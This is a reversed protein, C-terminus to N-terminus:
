QGLGHGIAAGLPATLLFVYAWALETGPGEPNDGSVGAVVGPVAGVAAGAITPWPRVGERSRTVLFVGLASGATYSLVTWGWQDQNDLLWYSGLALWAVIAGSYFRQPFSSPTQGNVVTWTRASSFGGADIIPAPLASVRDLRQALAGQWLSSALMCTLMLRHGLGACGGGSHAMRSDRRRYSPHRQPALTSGRLGRESVM